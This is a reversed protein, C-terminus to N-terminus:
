RTGGKRLVGSLAALGTRGLILLDLWISWYEIYFNDFRARDEISTDGTLGNVQAWGTLGARVRERQGYGRICSRLRSAFFPREPRPGVLAM